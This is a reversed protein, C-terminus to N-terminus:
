PKVMVGLVNVRFAALFQSSNVFREYALMPFFILPHARGYSPEKEIMRLEEVQLGTAEALRKLTRRTNARYMTPYPDHAEPGLKRLRNALAIHMSHPLLWAGFPVYHYFNPTRFAYRGGSRLVRGVEKFHVAPNQVHELVYNSVCLDVCADPIPLKEGDYVFYEALSKNDKIEDSVDVGVVTGISALYRSTENDPGAGIELIRTTASASRGIMGHFEVTGNIFEPKLYYFRDFLGQTGGHFGLSKM